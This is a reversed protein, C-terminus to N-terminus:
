QRRQRRRDCLSNSAKLNIHPRSRHNHMSSIRHSDRHGFLSSRSITCPHKISNSSSSIPLLTTRFTPMIARITDSRLPSKHSPLVSNEPIAELRGPTPSHIIPRPELFGDPGLAKGAWPLLPPPSLLLKPRNPARVLRRGKSLLPPQARALLLFHLELPMWQLPRHIRLHGRHRVMNSSSSSITNNSSRRTSTNSRVTRTGKPSYQPKAKHLRFRNPM